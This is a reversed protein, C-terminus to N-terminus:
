SAALLKSFLDEFSVSRPLLDPDVAVARARLVEREVREFRRELFIRAGVVAMADLVERVEEDVFLNEIAHLSQSHDRNRLRREDPAGGILEEIM